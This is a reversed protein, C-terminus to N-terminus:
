TVCDWRRKPRRACYMSVAETICGFIRAKDHSMGQRVFGSDNWFKLARKNSAAVNVEVRVLPHAIDFIEAVLRRGVGRRQFEPDVDLERILCTSDSIHVVAYGLVRGRLTRAILIRNNHDLASWLRTVREETLPLYEDLAEVRGRLEMSYAEAWAKRQVTLGGLLDDRNKVDYIEFESM